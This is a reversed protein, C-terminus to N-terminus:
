HTTARKATAGFILSRRAHGSPIAANVTGTPSLRRSFFGGAPTQRRGDSSLAANSRHYIQEAAPLGPLRPKLSYYATIIASRGKRGACAPHCRALWPLIGSGGGTRTPRRVWPKRAPRPSGGVLAALLLEPLYEPLPAIASLILAPPGGLYVNVPLAYRGEKECTLPFPALRGGQWDPLAYGDRQPTTSKCGTCASTRGRATPIRRASWPCRSSPAATKRGAPSRPCVSWGRSEIWWTWWPRAVDGDPTYWDALAQWALDRVGWLRAPTPPM